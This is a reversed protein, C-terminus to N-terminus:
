QPTASPTTGSQAAAERRRAEITNQIAQQQRQSDVKAQELAKRKSADNSRSCACVLLAALVVGIRRAGRM